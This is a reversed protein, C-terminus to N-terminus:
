EGTSTVNVVSATPEDGGLNVLLAKLASLVTPLGIIAWVIKPDTWDVPTGGVVTLATIIAYILTTGVREAFDKWYQSGWKGYSVM